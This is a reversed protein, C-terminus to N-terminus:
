QLLFRPIKFIFIVYLYFSNHLTVVTFFLSRFNCFSSADFSLFSSITFFIINCVIQLFLSLCFGVHCAMIPLFYVEVAGENTARHPHELEELRSIYIIIFPHISLYTSLYIEARFRLKKLLQNSKKLDPAHMM